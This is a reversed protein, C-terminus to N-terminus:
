GVVFFVSLHILSVVQCLRLQSVVELNEIWIVFIKKEYYFLLVKIDIM